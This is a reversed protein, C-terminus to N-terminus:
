FCVFSYIEEYENNQPHRHKDSIGKVPSSGPSCENVAVASGKCDESSNFAKAAIKENMVVIDAVADIAKFIIRTVRWLRM